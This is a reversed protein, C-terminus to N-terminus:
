PTFNLHRQFQCFNLIQPRTTHLQKEQIPDTKERSNPPRAHLVELLIMLPLFTVTPLIQHFINIDFKLQLQAMVYNLIGSNCCQKVNVTLNFDSPLAIDNKYGLPNFIAM